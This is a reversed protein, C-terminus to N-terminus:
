LDTTDFVPNNFGVPLKDNGKRQGLQALAAGLPESYEPPGNNEEEEQISQMSSKTGKENNVDDSYDLSSLSVKDVDSNEEDMDLALASDINLNLVPNAGEMTYKNTGPVVPGSKQNDANVMSASNMAKAAKLKRRYNRRTCLLSTTLVALVIILGGVIGLLAYQVPDAGTETVPVNGINSLGLGQLLLFHAPDSLKKEVESATLATGNLYVFYAVMFSQRTAKGKVAQISVIKVVSDTASTLARKIEDEKEKVEDVSIDFQLEVKYTVDVTFIEVVTSTSLDGTDTATVTVLYRGKLNLDLSQITQILGVYVNNQQTTIADFVKLDATTQDNIDKFEVSAVKFKIQSNVGSDLDTATVKAVSTGISAGESVVVFVSDPASFQPANDNIDEINIVMKGSTVSNNQGIETNEDVVQAEVVAQTCEEYDVTDEPNVRVDGNSDLFFWSCPKSSGKCMCTVSELEYVLLHNTDKDNAIFKGIAETITSNEKVSVPEVSEFEPREDNVDLVNVEVMVEAKERELDAAEVQLKFQKNPSEYDLEIDPDVTIRGMYGNSGESTSIVFSGFSGSIISFSIRNFETTQDLDKAYVFGVIAGKQGEKVSFTYSSANFQPANDNIDKVDIFVPVTSSLSPRGKDTAMVSLVIRGDLKPDLAERDLEDNNTLMGTNPDITFISSYSSPELSFVIESNPTNPEDADTADIKRQFQDGEAVSELYSDRNIVPPQDNIDTLTIELVTSGPNDNTDRAQLTASYLSRAERDLLVQNKVYIEGTTRNVDFYTLISEPLLVYVINGQDMTDPDDATITDVVTNEPSHEAVSLKYTSKPFTPYNDNIDKINITVTATSGANTEKDIAIVQLIMQQKKEFDLNQSQRVLLQVVSESIQTFSPEVSFVDKDVGELRLETNATKDQDIVKMNIPVAGMSHEAIEGTFETAIVCTDEECKYFEPKNDNVDIINILVNTTASAQVGHINTKSETAKVTLTVTDGVVERDIASLVSIIGDDRSIVFLGDATSEEITYIMKDLIGTDPDIATVQFVSTGVPSNEQVNGVFSTGTFQPDLDPVDEVTIFSFVVASNYITEESACKGGGDTANIKLRYFSSLSTYNLGKVLTVHGTTSVISFPNEINNPSVEDISYRVVGALSTDYDIAEVRFLTSGLVTNEPVEINYSSQQFLPKNDNADALIITLEESIVNFGDTITVGLTIVDVNERDLANRVTVRGTGSNVAFFLANTGTLTYTLPDNEPDSADIDFAHGGIAIDECVTYVRTGLSPSNNAKVLSLLCLLLFGGTLREM